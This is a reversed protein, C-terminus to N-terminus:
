RAFWIEVARCDLLSALFNQLRTGCKERGKRSLRGQAFGFPPSKSKEGEGCDFIVAGIRATKM